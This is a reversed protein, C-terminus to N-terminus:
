RRMRMGSPIALERDVRDVARCYTYLAETIQQRDYVSRIEAPSIEFEDPM